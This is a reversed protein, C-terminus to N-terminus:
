TVSLRFAMRGFSVQDGDNVVVVGTVRRGNVCTGNTSGLDRLIWIGNQHTLEAHRRSVTEHSLRLGSGMERGIRLPIPGPEPFLLKPLRETTWAKRLRVTFASARGVAAFMRRSWNPETELGATLVALDSSQRAALALEMRHIFTEHSLRGQAAGERLVSLARDREADSVRASYTPPEYSPTM